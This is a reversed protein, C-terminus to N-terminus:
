PRGPAPQLWRAGACGTGRWPAPAGAAGACRRILDEAAPTGLFRDRKPTLLAPEIPTVAIASGESEPAVWFGAKM